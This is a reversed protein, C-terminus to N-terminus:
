RNSLKKVLKEVLEVSVEEYQADRDSRYSFDFKDTYTTPDIGYKKCSSHIQNIKTEKMIREVNDITVGSGPLIQILNGYKEQLERLLNIGEVAKPQLGATLVRDVGLNILLEISEYPDKVCDFARHFVAEGKYSHVLEVMKKTSEVEINSNSDLFGFAIGDSRNELLLKADEFIIEKEVNNYYFGAGRPRVMSIVKLNTNSKTKILSGLSPTLGGLYLASNLEIRQAGGKYSALADEYSGCCIEVVNM